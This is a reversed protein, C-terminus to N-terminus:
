ISSDCESEALGRRLGARPLSRLAPNLAADIPHLPRAIAPGFKTLPGSLQRRTILMSRKPKQNTHANLLPTPDSVKPKATGGMPDEFLLVM